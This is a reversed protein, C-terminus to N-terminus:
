GGGRKSDVCHRAARRGERRAETTLPVVAYTRVGLGAAASSGDERLMTNMLTMLQEIREDNRLDEGGKVQM